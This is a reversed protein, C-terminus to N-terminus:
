KAHWQWWKKSENKFEPKGGPAIEQNKYYFTLKVESDTTLAFLRRVNENEVIGKIYLNCQDVLERTLELNDSIYYAIEGGFAKREVSLNMIHIFSSNLDKLLDDLDKNQLDVRFNNSRPMETIIVHKSLEEEFTEGAMGTIEGGEVLFVKDSIPEEKPNRFYQRIVSAFKMRLNSNADTVIMTGKYPIGALLSEAEIKRSIEIMFAKDLIKECAYEYGTIFATPTDELKQVSIELELAKLNAIATQKIDHFRELLDEENLVDEYVMKSGEDFGYVVLPSFHRDFLRERFFLQDNKRYDSPKLVPMLQGM